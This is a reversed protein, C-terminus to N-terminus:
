TPTTTLLSRTYAEFFKGGDKGLSIMTDWLINIFLNYVKEAVFPSILEANNKEYLGDDSEPTVYGMLLSNPQTGSLSEVAYMENKLIFREQLETLSTLARDQNALLGDFDYDEFFVNRPVGGVQRFRLEIKEESFAPGLILRARMLEDLSWLPFYKFVGMVSGRLKAFEKGGWHQENPSSVIIVKPLFTSKPNCSDNSMGPDIVYYTSKRRLSDIEAEPLKESYVNIKVNMGTADFEGSALPKFEYFWGDTKKTRILYVVVTHGKLLLM